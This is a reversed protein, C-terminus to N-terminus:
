KDIIDRIQRPSTCLKSDLEEATVYGFAGIRKKENRRSTMKYSSYIFQACLVQPSDLTRCRCRGIRTYRYLVICGFPEFVSFFYWRTRGRDMNVNNLQHKAIMQVPHIEPYVASCGSQTSMTGIKIVESRKIAYQM